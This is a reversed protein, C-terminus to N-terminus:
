SNSRRKENLLVIADGINEVLARHKEESQELKLTSNKRETIDRYNIVIGKVSDKQLLNTVIGEIWITHGKKHLMRFEGYQPIGPNDYVQAFLAACKQRDDPHILDLVTNGQIDQLSYGNIREVSPSRYLIAPREESTLVTIADSINDVLARLWEESQKIKIQAERSETLDISYTAIGTVEGATIVPNFSTRFCVLNGNREYEVEIVKKNGLLVDELVVNRTAQVDKPFDEYAEKGPWPDRGTLLRHAIKFPENFLIIRKETDLLSAAGGANDFFATLESERERTAQEEKIRQSIDRIVAIYGIGPMARVNVESQIVARNKNETQTRTVFLRIGELRAVIEAKNLKEGDPIIDSIKKGLLVGAQIGLLECLRKNVDTIM